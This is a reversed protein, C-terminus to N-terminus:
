PYATGPSSLNKRFVTRSPNYLTAAPNGPPILLGRCASPRGPSQKLNWNLRLKNTSSEVAAAQAAVAEAPAAVAPAEEEVTPVAMAVAATTIKTTTVTTTTIVIM